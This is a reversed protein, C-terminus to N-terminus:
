LEAPFRDRVESDDCASLHSFFDLYDNGAIRPPKSERTADDFLKERLCTEIGFLSFLNGNRHAFGDGIYDPVGVLPSIAGFTKGARYALTVAGDLDLKAVLALRKIRRLFRNRWGVLCARSPAANKCHLGDHVFYLVSALAGRLETRIFFYRGSLFPQRSLSLM